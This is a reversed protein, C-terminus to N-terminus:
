AGPHHDGFNYWRDREYRLVELYHNQVGLRLNQALNM